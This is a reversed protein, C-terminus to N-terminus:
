EESEAGKGKAEDKACIGESSIGYCAFGQEREGLVDGDRVLTTSEV